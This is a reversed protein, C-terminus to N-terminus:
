WYVLMKIQYWQTGSLSRFCCNNKKLYNLTKSSSANVVMPGGNFRRDQPKDAGCPGAGDGQRREVARIPVESSTQCCSTILSLFISRGKIGLRQQQCMRATNHLLVVSFTMKKQSSGVTPLFILKMKMNITSYKGLSLGLILASWVPLLIPSDAPM